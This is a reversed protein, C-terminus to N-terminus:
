SGAPLRFPTSTDVQGAGWAGSSLWHTLHRTADAFSEIAVHALGTARAHDALRGKALVLDATGAVCIDSRGDGVVIRVAHAERDPTACKCNGSLPGCTERAHPFTVRWRDAGAFELANARVPVDICHRRLVTEVVHDLGDSVVTVDIGNARTVDIFAAVGPDIEIEAVFAALDSPTARLLDIQRILCERSGIRGATWEAEIATWGPLAFRELLADITDVTAITGDFDVIVHVPAPSPRRMRPM